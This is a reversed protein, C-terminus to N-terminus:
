EEDPNEKKVSNAPNFSITAFERLILRRFTNRSPEPTLALLAPTLM